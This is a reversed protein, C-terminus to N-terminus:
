VGADKLVKNARKFMEEVTNKCKQLLASMSGTADMLCITKSVSSIIFVPGKNYDFLFKKVEPAKGAYL